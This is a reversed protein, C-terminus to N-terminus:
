FFFFFISHCAEVFIDDFAFLVFFLFQLRSCVCIPIRLTEMKSVNKSICLCINTWQHFPTTIDYASYGSAISMGISSIHFILMTQGIIHVRRRMSKSSNKCIKPQRQVFFFFSLFFKRQFSCIWKIEREKEESKTKTKQGNSSMKEIFLHISSRRKIAFLFPFNCINWSFFLLQFYCRCCCFVHGDFPFNERERHTEVFSLGHLKQNYLFYKLSLLFWMSFSFNNM